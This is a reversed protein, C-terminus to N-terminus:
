GAGGAGRLRCVDAETTTAPLGEEGLSQSTFMEGPPVHSSISSLTPRGEKTEMVAKAEVMYSYAEVWLRRLGEDGNRDM